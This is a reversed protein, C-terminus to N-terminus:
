RGCETCVASCEKQEKKNSVEGTKWKTEGAKDTLVSGVNINM